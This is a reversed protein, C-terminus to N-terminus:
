EAIFVDELEWEQGYIWVGGRQSVQFERRCWIYGNGISQGALGNRGRELFDYMGEDKGVRKLDRSFYSLWVVPFNVQVSGDTAQPREFKRDKFIILVAGKSHTFRYDEPKGPYHDTELEPFITKLKTLFEDTIENITM